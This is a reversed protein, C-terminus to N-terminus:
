EEIITKLINNRVESITLNFKKSIKILDDHEVKIKSIGGYSSEKIRINGYETNVIKNIRDMTIRKTSYKRIGITTTNKLILNIINNKDAENCLSVLLNGPRNKKMQVPVIFADLAGNELLLNIVYGIDEGTMDDINCILEIIHDQEQEQETEGLFSRICNAQQFNKQGMGYGISDTLMIPMEGFSTAFHKLIAAGTPTCLEGQIGGGYIPTNKLIYSTAPAPVPLIGHMCKIQGYGVHIPSVIVKDPNIKEMLISVGVIDAIADLNGVEHFHVKDVPKGHSKSEADAIISYIAISNQKVVDSISLSNIINKIEILGIHKHEHQHKHEHISELHCHTHMDDHEHDHQHIHSLNSIDVSKEEIDNISISIQTGIIGCKEVQSSSVKVGPLRLNNMLHIFDEKDPILELLSAMLMDGAAGMNCEIYLTKM